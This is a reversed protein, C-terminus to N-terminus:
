GRVYRPGVRRSNYYLVMVRNRRSNNYYQVIIEMYHDNNTFLIHFVYMMDKPYSFPEGCHKLIIKPLNHLLEYRKDTSSIQGMYKGNRIKLTGTYSLIHHIIDLPLTLFSM